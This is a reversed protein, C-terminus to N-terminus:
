AVWGEGWLGDMRKFWTDYEHRVNWISYREAWKAVGDRPLDIAKQVADAGEQLTRFRYGSVGENVTETFAGFDSAVVPTGSMMAEVNVGGFPEIYLTPVICVAAGAMLEAREAKNVPGAYELNGGVITVEPTIIRGKEASTAGPGAVILKMGLRDAIQAAVHPGKRQVLRGIFLLYDGGGAGLRPTFDLPDFSNPIVTDYWRGNVVGQKAYIYHMWAYSEFCLHDNLCVGEYGIGWENALGGPLADVIPRQCWGSILCMVDVRPDFTPTIHAITRANMTRWWVDSPSWGIKTWPDNPDHEGFWEVQEKDTVTVVHESCPAENHEGSYLIVEHGLSDMMQAFKVVKQTYACTLYDATTQTWPLSPVHLRM